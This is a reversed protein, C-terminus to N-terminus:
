KNDTNLHKVFTVINKDIRRQYSVKDMLNRVLHIGLGGVKREELSLETDPTEVGIPNFPIGDDAISVTLRNESLEVKIEIDHEDEDHYAHTIINNLMEDFVMNMKRRIPTSIGYQESFTNFRKKVQGIESLHNKITMKLIMPLTEEPIGLFQIALATIDDAQDAGDEFRKVESVTSNVIDEASIDEFSSLVEALRKDSFFEKERNRAETIGDTYLLLVDKKSLSTKNEKYTLGSIAGAVPGHLQDIQEISGDKRKIYPPNHGANTYLFKGTKTNLIGIFITVFMFAENHRSLEDNIHTIISATSYDDAARSKILTKTVAMFLAAPVGKGSVDGICFCFRDEDIFFFDYFDGGVERAPKMTGYIVIEKRDPFPPFILPIMSMQIQRGINLESEMREKTSTTKKLKEISNELETQMRFFAQGLEGVEDLRNSITDLDGSFHFSDPEMFDHQSLEQSYRTLKKLPRTITKSFLYAVIVIVVLLGIFLFTNINRLSYVYKFAEAEDIESMIAWHVDQINLPKYSSLVSVDRYDPFIGTGTEDNIAARTGETEVKQLGITSNLSKIRDITELPLGIEKAMKFYNESDEILFRSQNRIKYDDGVIYTEGSVGLGVEAWEHENTMINNIRDIPMQFLLVGVKKNGDFIPSAIFSAQANYSPHYPAFDVLKVFHMDFTDKAARFADAFNTKSYPGTLLSTGYDVEKFVTYIIHGTEHDVLFIDYFGFKQLYSRIVPHYMKHLRSYTSGDNHFDLFHKNGFLHPNSTIYLYQLIKANKDKPLYQAYATKASRAEDRDLNPILRELFKKRYYNRVESDIKSMEADTVNLEADIKKFAITFAKMADIIMRDESFTRVQNIIQQFYDEIQNAKMERIATLKNFSEEELSSRATHYAIYGNIGVAVIAVFSLIILIKTGIKLKKFM